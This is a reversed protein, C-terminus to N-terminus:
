EIPVKRKTGTQTASTATPASLATSPTPDTEFEYAGIDPPTDRLSLAFDQFPTPRTTLGANILPSGPQLAFNGTQASTFEPNVALDLGTNIVGSYDRGEAKPNSIGVYNVDVFAFNINKLTNGFVDNSALSFSAPIFAFSSATQVFSTLGSANNFAVINNYVNPLFARTGTNDGYMIGTGANNAITNHRIIVGPEASFGETLPGINAVIVGHGTDNVILNNEIVGSAASQIAVGNASDHAHNGAVIHAHGGKINVTSAWISSMDNGTVIVSGSGSMGIGDTAVNIFRVPNWNTRIVNSTVIVKIEGTPAIGPAYLTRLAVGAGSRLDPANPDSGQGALITNDIIRYEASLAPDFVFFNIARETTDIHCNVVTVSGADRLDIGGGGFANANPIRNRITFGEIVLNRVGVGRIAVDAVNSVDITTQSPGETARLTVTFAPSTIGSVEFQAPPIYTGPAVDIVVDTPTSGTVIAAAQNIATQIDGGSPVQITTIQAAAIAPFLGLFATVVAGHALRLFCVRSGNRM